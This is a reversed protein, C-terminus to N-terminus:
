RSSGAAQEAVYAAADDAAPADGSLLFQVGAATNRLSLFGFRTDAFSPDSQLRVVYLPVAEATLSVGELRAFAGGRQLAFSRLSVGEVRQTGLALLQPSFGAQNGLAQGDVFEAIAERNRIAERTQAIERELTASRGLVPRKKLADVQEKQSKQQAELVVVRAEMAKLQGGRNVQLFIMLGLLLLLFIASNQASFYDRHPRYEPLYLNIQQM